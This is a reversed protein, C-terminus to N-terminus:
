EGSITGSSESAVTGVAQLARLGQRRDEGQGREISAFSDGFSACESRTAPKTRRSASADPQGAMGGGVQCFSGPDVVDALDADRILYQELRSRESGASYSSTLGCAMSPAWIAAFGQVFLLHRSRAADRASRRRRSDSRGPRRASRPPRQEARAPRCSPRSSSPGCSCGAWARAPPARRTRRAQRRCNLGAAQLARALM